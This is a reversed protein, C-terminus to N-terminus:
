VPSQPKTTYLFYNTKEDLTVHVHVQPHGDAMHELMESALEPLLTQTLIHDINRAGTDVETCRAAIATPINRAYTLEGRHTEQFRQQIHALKLIAIKEIEKDRLPYYPVILLRGLMAAHFHKLLQPRIHQVLVDADPQNHPDQCASIITEAGINVTMLILSNKFDVVLGESDELTGKDFVQYFLEMVDPHAKEVEDLLIVSYPHRRVAETLVGGAGFGVYGPPSGKLKSVTYSEQYESLNIHILAHEGGYLVDALAIATETKGVGSPGALLFVGVPKDPDELHAGYTRLGRCMVDLAQSQGVVRESLTEKLALLAQIEDTLMKGVPIGTWGSIVSAITSADVRLPIMPTLGQIKKHEAELSALEERQQAAPKSKSKAESLEELVKQLGHINEVLGKEKEWQTELKKKSKQVRALETDLEKIQTAYNQGVREERMLMARQHELQESTRNVEEIPPPTGAQAVAVRACATDLVSIAKDPLHRESIYRHSLRVADRVAQELIRVNHHAELTPVIGRVMEVAADEDPEEVRIVQFRRALAADKEFYKKYEGWTTAAITRLEGRALAPKLLNAADGQGAMAGAGILTHAEDIFLITPQPSGKVETIVTKLREEFEGKMGAGAQLLGLDLVRVSVSALAPPVDGQAIRLAFGEVVATKGVGAEGTLIPNNQRRRMLIDIIQRIEGDRGRIPDIQNARARETLDITYVDLAPTSSQVRTTNSKVDRLTTTGPLSAPSLGDESSGRIIDVIDERLSGGPIRLLTPAAEVVVGRLTEHQFLALLLAGTRVASVGLHLSSLTWAERFLELIHPSLAPTRSNGRKFGEMSKTLDRLVDAAQLQYYRLIRQIDTDSDPTDLLKTILHEIEVNFHTQSVCLAAASEMSKKCVPNLKAILTKLDNTM